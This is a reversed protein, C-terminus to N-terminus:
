TAPASGPAPQAAQAALRRASRASESGRMRGQTLRALETVTAFSYGIDALRAILESSLRDKPFGAPLDTLAQGQAGDHLLIISGPHAGTEALEIMSEVPAPQWDQAWASWLVIDLGLRRIGIVQRWTLAGFAPRYLTIPTRALVALEDRAAGVANVAARASKASLRTHDAGHLGLDHGRAVIEAILKPHQRAAPLLVFFTAKVEAADLVDLIAPTHVPDPGDDYTLAVVAEDTVACGLVSVASVIRGLVGPLAQAPIRGRNQSYADVDRQRVLSVAPGSQM